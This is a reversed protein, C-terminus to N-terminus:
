CSRAGTRVKPHRDARRDWRRAAWWPSRSRGFYPWDWTLFLNLSGLAAAGGIAGAAFNVVRNARWVLIIGVAALGTAAGLVAGIAVLGVPAGNPLVVAALAWTVGALV